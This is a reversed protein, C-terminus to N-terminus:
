YPNMLALGKAQGEGRSLVEYGLEKQGKIM